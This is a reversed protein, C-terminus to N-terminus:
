NKQVFFTNIFNSIKMVLTIVTGDKVIKRPPQITLKGSLSKVTNWMRKSGKSNSKEINEDFNKIDLKKNYFNYKKTKVM